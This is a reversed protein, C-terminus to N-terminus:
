KKSGLAQLTNGHWDQISIGIEALVLAHGLLRGLFSTECGNQEMATVSKWMFRTGKPYRIRLTTIQTKATPLWSLFPWLDQPRHVNVIFCLVRVRPPLAPPLPPISKFVDMWTVASGKAAEVWQNPALPGHLVDIHPHQVMFQGILEPRTGEGIAPDDAWLKVTHLRGFRCRLLFSLDHASGVKRYMNWRLTKVQPLSLEEKCTSWDVYSRIYLESLQQFANIHLTADGALTDNVSIFLERLTASCIRAPVALLAPSLTISLSLSRLSNAQLLLCILDDSVAGTSTASFLHCDVEIERVWAYTSIGRNKIRTLTTALQKLMNKHTIKLYRYLLPGPRILIQLRDGQVITLDLMHSHIEGDLSLM